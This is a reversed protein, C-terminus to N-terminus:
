RGKIATSHIGAFEDQPDEPTDARVADQYEEDPHLDTPTTIHQREGSDFVPGRTSTYVVSCWHLPCLIRSDLIRGHGREPFYTCQSAEVWCGPRSAAFCCYINIYQAVALLDPPEFV